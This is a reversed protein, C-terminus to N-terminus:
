SINCWTHYWQPMPRVAYHLMHSVCYEQCALWSLVRITLGHMTCWRVADIILMKMLSWCWCWCDIILMLMLSWCLIL